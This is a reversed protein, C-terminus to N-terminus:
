CIRPLLEGEGAALFRSGGYPTIVIVRDIPSRKEARGVVAAGEGGPAKKIARLAKEACGAPVIALFRGECALHLPDLGLLSCFSRVARNVPLAGEELVFSVGAATSIEHLAAALGGRTPDRLVRTEPVATLLTEVQPWVPCADSKLQGQNIGEREALIAAGHEGLTGSVLVIDGPQVRGPHLVAEYEVIGIGTTNLYIGDGQGKEVVKVDGTVVSTGCEKLAEAVSGVVRRVVRLETGEELIMALTLALPRAGAMALDNATGFVALRGIDGGPFFLPKVVFSDTTFAIRGEAAHLVAADHRHHVPISLIATIEAILESMAAGGGGHALSVVSSM